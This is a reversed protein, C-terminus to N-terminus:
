REVAARVAARLRTDVTLERRALGRAARAPSLQIEHDWHSRLGGQEWVVYLARWHASVSEALEPSNRCALTGDVIKREFQAYSRHPCHLVAIRSRDPDVPMAPALVKHNGQCVEVAADARHAAKRTAWRRWRLVLQDPRQEAHRPAFNLQPAEVVGFRPATAALAGPLDHDPAWWLEDADANIVWDAGHDIAALRAMRTVWVSQEYGRSPEDLVTLPLSAALDDLLERTGDVSNNDTVVMHSAGSRLHHRINAEVIDLEDRVLLTVVLRM